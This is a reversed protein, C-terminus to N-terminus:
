GRSSLLFLIIRMWDKHLYKEQAVICNGNMEKNSGRVKILYIIYIVTSLSVFLSTLIIFAGKILNFNVMERKKKEEEVPQSPAKDVATANSIEGTVTASHLRFDVLTVATM